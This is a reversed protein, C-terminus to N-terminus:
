TSTLLSFVAAGRGSRVINTLCRDTWEKARETKRQASTRRKRRSYKWEQSFFRLRANRRPSECKGHSTAEAPVATVRSELPRRPPQGSKPEDKLTNDVCIDKGRAGSLQCWIVFSNCVCHKHSQPKETSADEWVFSEGM